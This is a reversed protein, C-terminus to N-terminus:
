FEPVYVAYGRPSAWLDIRGDAQTTKAKPKSKDKGWWGVCSLPTSSWRTSVWSGRWESAHNNLVIVLGRQNAYGNRQAIYLNADSYLLSTSGGAHDRHIRCLNAIGNPTGTLALGYNFYDKWFIAPVGEGTLTMAYALLKDTIIPCKRDTDHNECFTVANMPCDHVLGSGWLGRMDFSQDNCMRQLSYFLPYDFASASWKIFALYEKLVNKNGDWYEVVGFCKQRDQISQVVWSDFYKVADYRFGDYGIGATGDRLWEIYKMVEAYTNPNDHCLDPLWYGELDGYFEGADASDYECPHFNHWDRPFKKSGPNFKTYVVKNSLPNLEQVDGKDCHNLVADALVTMGRDHAARVLSKLEEASGFWTKTGGKQDISGQDYYDYPAYGMSDVHSSKASPPLWITTIGTDALDPVKEEVHSWWGSEKNETKPCDWFFSQLIIM